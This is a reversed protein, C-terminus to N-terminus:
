DRRKKVGNSVKRAGRVKINDIYARDLIKGAIGKGYDPYSAKRELTSSRTGAFHDSMKRNEVMTISWPSDRIADRRHSPGITKGTTRSRPKRRKKSNEAFRSMNELSQFVFISEKGGESGPM